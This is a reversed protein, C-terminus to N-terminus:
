KILYAIDKEYKYLFSNIDISNLNACSNILRNTTDLGSQRLSRDHVFYEDLEADVLTRNLYQKEFERVPLNYKNAYPELVDEFHGPEVEFLIGVGDSKYRNVGTNILRKGQVMWVRNDELIVTELHSKLWKLDPVEKKVIEILFSFYLPPQTRTLYYSRNANLIKGYHVIQYKFNEAIAKAKEL